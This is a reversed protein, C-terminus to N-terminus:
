KKVFGEDVMVKYVSKSIEHMMKDVGDPNVSETIGTWIITDEKISFVNTEVTYKITETYYEPNRYYGWNRYFYSSFSRYYQPYSSILNRSYVDEKDLDLLRMTIAGDFGDIKIKYRISDENYQNFKDDLYNYSVIGKGGLYTVMEDEAKRRSTETKFLAVVLVKNLDNIFLQKSPEKWSSTVKTSSCSFITGLILLIFIFKKMITTKM